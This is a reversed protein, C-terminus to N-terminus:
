DLSPATQLFEKRGLGKLSYQVTQLSLGLMCFFPPIDHIGIEVPLAAYRVFM